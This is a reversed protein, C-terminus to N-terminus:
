KTTNTHNSVLGYASFHGFSADLVNDDEVNIISIKTLDTGM